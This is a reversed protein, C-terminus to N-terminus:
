FRVIETSYMLELFEEDSVPDPLKVRSFFDTREFSKAASLFTEDKKLKLTPDNACNVITEGNNIADLTKKYNLGLEKALAYYSPYVKGNYECPHRRTKGSIPTTIIKDLNWGKEKRSNYLTIPLGYTECLAEVTPYAKGRYVTREEYSLGERVADEFNWGRSLRELLTDFVLALDEAVAELNPYEKDKYIYTANKITNDKEELYENFTKTEEPFVQLFILEKIYSPVQM